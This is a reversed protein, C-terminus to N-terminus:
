ESENGDEEGDDYDDCCAFDIVRMSVITNRLDETCSFILDFKNGAENYFDLVYGAETDETEDKWKIGIDELAVPDTSFAFMNYVCEMVSVNRTRIPITFYRSLGEHSFVLEVQIDYDSDSYGVVNEHIITPKFRSHDAVYYPLYYIVKPVLEYNENIQTIEETIFVCKKEHLLEGLLFDRTEDDGLRKPLYNFEIEKTIDNQVCIAVGVQYGNFSDNGYEIEQSYGYKETNKNLAILKM